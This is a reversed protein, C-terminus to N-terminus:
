ANEYEELAILRGEGNRALIADRYAIHPIQEIGAIECLARMLVAPKLSGEKRNAITSVTERAERPDLTRVPAVGDFADALPGGALLVVEIRLDTHAGLWGLLQVLGVPAGTLTAEHSVFAVDAREGVAAGTM